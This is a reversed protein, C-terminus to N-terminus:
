DIVVSTNTIGKSILRYALRQAAQDSALPGIRVRFIPLAPNDGPLIHIPHNAMDTLRNHLNEANTKSSFASVQLWYKQSVVPQAVPEPLIIDAASVTQTDIPM